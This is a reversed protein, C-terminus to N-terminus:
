EVQILEKKPLLMWIEKNMKLINKREKSHYVLIFFFKFVSCLLVSAAALFLDLVLPNPFLIYYNNHPYRYNYRRVVVGVLWM